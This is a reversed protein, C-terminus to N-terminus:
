KKSRNRRSARGKKKPQAKPEFYTFTMAKFSAKIVHPNGKKNIPKIELGAITFIKKIKSLQDFFIGLNHYGGEIDIALQHEVYIERQRRAPASWKLVKLNSALILSEIRTIIGAIENKEPLIEKLNELVEERKKVEQKLQDLKGEKKEGTKIEVDLQQIQSVVGNIQDQTGSYVMFYFFLIAVAGIFLFVLFQGYWPLSQLDM